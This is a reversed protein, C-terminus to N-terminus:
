KIEVKHTSVDTSSYYPSLVGKSTHIKIKAVREPLNEEYGIANGIKDVIGGGLPPVFDGNNLLQLHIFDFGPPLEVRDFKVGEKVGYNICLTKKPLSDYVHASHSRNGFLSVDLVHAFIESPLLEYSLAIQIAIGAGAIRGANTDILYVSDGDMIFETHFYGNKFNARHFLTSVAEKAQKQLQIPIMRDAPFHNIAEVKGVKERLSFGLFYVRSNVVFGELSILRGAIFPQALWAGDILAQPAEKQMKEKLLPVSIEDLTFMGRAGATQVPKFLVSGFTEQMQLLEELPIHDIDFKLFSPSYEPILSCVKAKDGLNILAPDLGSVGLEKALLCASVLFRDATTTVAAIDSINEKKIFATMQEVSSADVDFYKYKEIARIADGSYHKKSCFFVPEYGLHQAGEAVDTISVLTPELILIKRM